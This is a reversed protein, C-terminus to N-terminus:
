FLRKKTRKNIFLNFLNFLIIRLKLNKIIKMIKVFYESMEKKRRKKLYQKSEFFDPSIEHFIFYNM